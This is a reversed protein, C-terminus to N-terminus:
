SVYGRTEFVNNYFDLNTANIQGPDNIIFHGNKEGIVLVYHGGGQATAVKAIVPHGSDLAQSLYQFDSGRHAHFELTNTSADRTAPGWNIENEIFDHDTELVTNLKGPDTPSGAFNLAMALCSLASGQTQINTGSDDYSQTNWPAGGQGFRTVNL